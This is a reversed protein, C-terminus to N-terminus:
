EQYDQPDKTKLNGSKRKKEDKQKMVIMASVIIVNMVQFWLLSVTIFQVHIELWIYEKQLDIM